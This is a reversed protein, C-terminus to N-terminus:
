PNPTPGDIILSLVKLYGDLEAQNVTSFRGALYTTLKEEIREVVTQGDSLLSFYRERRDDKGTHKEIYRLKELNRTLQTVMTREVGLEEALESTNKIGRNLLVSLVVWEQISLGFTQVLVLMEQRLIKHSKFHRVAARYLLV